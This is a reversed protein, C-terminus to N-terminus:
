EKPTWITLYWIQSKYPMNIAIKTRFDYYKKYDVTIVPVEEMTLILLDYEQNIISDNVRKYYNLYQPLRKRDVHLGTNVDLPFLNKIIPKQIVLGNRFFETMGTDFVFRDHAMMKQVIAPSNFINKHNSILYDVANWSAPTLDLNTRLNKTILTFLNFSLLVICLVKLKRNLRLRSLSVMIVFPLHLHILYSLWNGTNRGLKFYIICFSMVVMFFAFSWRWKVLPKDFFRWQFGEIVTRV